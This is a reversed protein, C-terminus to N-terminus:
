KKVVKYIGYGAAALGAIAGINACGSAFLSLTLVAVFFYKKM